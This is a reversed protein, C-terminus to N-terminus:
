KERSSILHLRGFVKNSYEESAKYYKILQNYKRIYKNLEAVRGGRVLQDKEGDIRQYIYDLLIDMKSRLSLVKKFMTTEKPTLGDEGIGNPYKTDLFDTFKKIKLYNSLFMEIQHNLDQEFTTGENKYNIQKDM